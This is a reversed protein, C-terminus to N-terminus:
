AHRFFFFGGEEDFGTIVKDLATNQHDRVRAGRRGTLLQSVLVNNPQGEFSALLADFTAPTGFGCGSGFFPNCGSGGGVSVLAGKRASKPITLQFSV